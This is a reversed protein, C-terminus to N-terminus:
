RLPKASTTRQCITWPKPGRNLPSFDSYPYGRPYLAGQGNKCPQCIARLEGSRAVSIHWTYGKRFAKSRSRQDWATTRRLPLGTSLEKIPASRQHLSLEQLTLGSKSRELLFPPRQEQEQTKGPERKPERNQGYEGLSDM